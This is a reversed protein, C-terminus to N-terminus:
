ICASPTSGQEVGRFSFGGLVEVFVFGAEGGVAAALPGAKARANTGPELVVIWDRALAPDPGESADAVAPMALLTM